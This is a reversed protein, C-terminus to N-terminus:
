FIKIKLFILNANMRILMMFLYYKNVIFIPIIKPIIYNLKLNMEVVGQSTYKMQDPYLYEKYTIKRNKM